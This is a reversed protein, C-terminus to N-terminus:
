SEPAASEDGPAATPMDDQRATAESSTAEGDYYLIRHCSPCQHLEQLRMIEQYIMPSISIHCQTCSGDVAAAVGSGRARTVAEYRGRLNPPMESLAAERKKTEVGLSTEITRVEEIAQGATEDIQSAIGAREEEVKALDGRAEDILGVLKQIEFERERALRRIEELERQVANAERENRCRTMKERSKDVQVNLQRLEGHLEGRTGEMRDIAAELGAIKTVLAVHREAKEDINQRKETLEASLNRIRSDLVELTKLIAITAQISM